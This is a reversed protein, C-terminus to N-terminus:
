ERRRGATLDCREGAQEVKWPAVRVSFCSSWLTSSTKRRSPMEGLRPVVEAASPRVFTLFSNLCADSEVERSFRGQHLVGVSRASYGMLLSSRLAGRASPAGPDRGALEVECVTRQQILRGLCSVRFNLPQSWAMGGAWYFWGSLTLWHVDQVGGARPRLERVADPLGRCLSRQQQQPQAPLLRRRGSAGSHQARAFRAANRVVLPKRGLAGSLLAAVAPVSVALPQLSSLSPDGGGACAWTWGQFVEPFFAATKM